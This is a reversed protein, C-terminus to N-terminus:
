LDPSNSGNDYISRFWLMEKANQNEITDLRASFGFKSVATNCRFYRSEVVEVIRILFVFIM